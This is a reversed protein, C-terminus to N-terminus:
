HRQSRAVAPNHQIVPFCASPDDIEAVICDRFRRQRWSPGYQNRLMLQRYPRFRLKRARIVLGLQLVHQRCAGTHAYQRSAWPGTSQPGLHCRRWARSATVGHLRTLAFSRGLRGVDGKLMNGSFEARKNIVRRRPFRDSLYAAFKVPAGLRFLRAESGVSM